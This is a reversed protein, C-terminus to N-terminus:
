QTSFAQGSAHTLRTSRFRKAWGDMLGDQKGPGRKGLGDALDHVGLVAALGCTCPSPPSPTTQASLCGDTENFAVHARQKSFPIPCFLVEHSLLKCLGISDAGESCRTQHSTRSTLEASGLLAPCPFIPETQRELVPVDRSSFPFLM